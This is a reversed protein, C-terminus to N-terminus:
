VGGGDISQCLKTRDEIGLMRSGQGRWRVECWRVDSWCEGKKSGVTGCSM